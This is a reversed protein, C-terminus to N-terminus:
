VLTATVSVKGVPKVTAGVGLANVLQVLPVTVATAPDEDTEKDPADSPVLWDAEALQVYEASIVAGPVTPVEVLVMATPPAVADEARPATLLVPAAVAFIMTTSPTNSLLSKAGSEINGPPVDRRVMEM